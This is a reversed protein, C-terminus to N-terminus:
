VHHCHHHDGAAFLHPPHGARPLLYGAGGAAFNGKGRRYVVLGAVRQEDAHADEGTLRAVATPLTLTPEPSACTTATLTLPVPSLRTCRLPAPFLAGFRLSSDIRMCGTGGRVVSGVHGATGCPAHSAGRGRCPRRRSRQTQGSAGGTGAARGGDVRRRPRSAAATAAHEGAGGLLVRQVSCRAGVDHRHGHVARTGQAYTPTLTRTYGVADRRRSTTQRGGEKYFPLSPRCPAFLPLPSHVCGSTSVVARAEQLLSLPSGKMQRTRVVELPMVAAAAVIRSGFAAASPVYMHLGQPAARLLEDRSAEYSVMYLAAAWWAVPELDALRRAITSPDRIRLRVAHRANQLFSTRRPFTRVDFKLCAGTSPIAMGMSTGLGRWFARLGETRYVAATIRLISPSANSASSSTSECQLRVKIISLPSLMLSTTATAASSAVVQTRLQAFAPLKLRTDHTPAPRSTPVDTEEGGGCNGVHRGTDREVSADGDGNGSEHTDRRGRRGRLAGLESYDISSDAWRLADNHDVFSVM